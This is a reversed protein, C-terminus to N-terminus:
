TQDHSCATKYVEVMSEVHTNLAYNTMVFSRGRKGMRKRLLPDSILKELAQAARSVNGAPVMFGTIGPQVVEKLGGADSVVVPRECASAELVSVGFSESVSLTVFIDLQNHYNAVEAYPVFGVFRVKDMIHLNQTLKELRKREHGEGIIMLQINHRSLSQVVKAFAQILTDIGYLPKLNKITGIVLPQHDSRSPSNNSFVDPDIGFPIVVPKRDSLQRIVGAMYHSTSLLIDAKKLVHRIMKRHLFSINPFRLVDSGWASVLFPHFGSLLGLFGYGSAYHAHLIDPQFQRISKRLLPLARIYRTKLVNGAKSMILGPSFGCDAFQLNERNLYNNRAAPNLSFLLIQIDKSVLANVWKIIHPEAPNGMIIIKM